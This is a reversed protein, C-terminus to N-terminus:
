QRPLTNLYTEFRKNLERWKRSNEESITLLADIQQDHAAISTALTAMSSNVTRVTAALRDLTRIIAEIQSDHAVVTETLRDLKEETTM